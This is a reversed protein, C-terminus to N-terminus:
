SAPAAPTAPMESNEGAHFQERSEQKSKGQGGLRGDPALRFDVSAQDAVLDDVAFRQEAIDDKTGGGLKLAFRGAGGAEDEALAEPPRVRRDGVHNVLIHRLDGGADFAGDAGPVFVGGDPEDGARRLGVVDLKAAAIPEGARRVDAADAAALEDVEGVIAGEARDDVLDAVRNAEPVRLGPLVPVQEDVDVELRDVARVPALVDDREPIAFVDAGIGVIRDHM